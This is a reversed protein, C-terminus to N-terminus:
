RAEIKERQKSLFDENRVALALDYHLQDLSEEANGFNQGVLTQVLDGAAFM